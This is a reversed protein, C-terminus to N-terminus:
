REWKIIIDELSEILSDGYIKYNQFLDTIENFRILNNCGSQKIIFENDVHIITYKVNHLYFSIYGQRDLLYVMDKIIKKKM